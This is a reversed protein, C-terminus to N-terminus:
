FSFHSIEKKFNKIKEVNMKIRMLILIMLKIMKMMMRKTKSM